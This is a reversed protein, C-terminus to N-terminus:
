GVAESDRAILALVILEATEEDPATACWIRTGEVFQKESGVAVEQRLVAWPLDVPDMDSDRNQQWWWRFSTSGIMAYYSPGLERDPNM